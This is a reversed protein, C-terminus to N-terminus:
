TQLLCSTYNFCMYHHAQVTYQVQATLVMMESSMDMWVNANMAVTQTSVYTHATTSMDLTQQIANM